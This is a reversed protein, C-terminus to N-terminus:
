RAEREITSQVAITAGAELYACSLHSKDIGDAVPILQCGIAALPSFKILHTCAASDRHRKRSMDSTICLTIGRPYHSDWVPM